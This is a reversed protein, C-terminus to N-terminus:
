KTEKTNRALKNMHHDFVLKDWVLRKGYREPVSLRDPLSTRVIAGTQACRLTRGAPFV